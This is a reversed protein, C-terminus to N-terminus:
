LVVKAKSQSSPIKASSNGSSALLYGDASCPKNLARHTVGYSRTAGSPCGLDSPGLFDTMNLACSCLASFSFKNGGLCCIASGLFECMRLPRFKLQCNVYPPMICVYMYRPALLTTLLPEAPPPAPWTPLAASCLCRFFSNIQM